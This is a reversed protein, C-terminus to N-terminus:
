RWARWEISWLLVGALMTFQLGVLSLGEDWAMRLSVMSTILLLDNM